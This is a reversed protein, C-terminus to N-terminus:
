GGFPPPSVKVRLACIKNTYPNTQSPDPIYATIMYDYSTASQAMNFVTSAGFIGKMEYLTPASPNAPLDVGGGSFLTWSTANKPTKWLAFRIKTAVGMNPAVVRVTRYRTFRYPDNYCNTEYATCYYPDAYKKLAVNDLTQHVWHSMFLNYEIGSEGNVSWIANPDCPGWDSVCLSIQDCGVTSSTTVQQEAQAAGAERTPDALEADPGCGGALAVLASLGLGAFTKELWGKTM